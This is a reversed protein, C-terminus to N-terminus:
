KNMRLDKVQSIRENFHAVKEPHKTKLVEFAKIAKTYLRQEVYLNALTETMLHSIDDAKEKVVYNGEEKLRSIKPEAVIFKEIAAEKVMETDATQIEPKESIIEVSEPQTYASIPNKNDSAKKDLKLWSQWTNIFQPVNSETKETQTEDSKGDPSISEVHDSFFSVNIVPRDEQATVPEFKKEVTINPVEGGFTMPKWDSNIPTTVDTLPKEETKPKAEKESVPEFPIHEAFNIDTNQTEEEKVEEVTKTKRSAKMKAEVEAILRQMEDEHRNIPKTPAAAMVPEAHPAVKVEPMFDDMGHFSLEASDELIEKKDETEMVIKEATCAEENHNKISVEEMKEKAPEQELIPPPTVVISGSELTSEIDIVPAPHELFDEEGEFLIRNLEGNIYVPKPAEVVERVPVNEAIFRNSAVQKEITNEAVSNVAKGNVLQFLIKKDTTFAATESLYNQYNENKFRHIGLLALARLSQAYPFKALEKEVSPMDEATIATPQKLLELIRENVM